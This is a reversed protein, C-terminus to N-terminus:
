PTTPKLTEAQVRAWQIIEEREDFPEIDAHIHFEGEKIARLLIVALSSVKKNTQSTKVDFSSYPDHLTGCREHSNVLDLLFPIDDRSPWNKIYHWRHVNYREDVEEGGDM